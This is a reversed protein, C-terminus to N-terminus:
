KPSPNKLNFRTPFPPSTLKDTLPRQHQSAGPHHILLTTWYRRSPCRDPSGGWACYTFMKQYIECSSSPAAPSKVKFFALPSENGGVSRRPIINKERRYLRWIKNGPRPFSLLRSPPSPPNIQIVGSVERRRGTRLVSAPLRFFVSTDRSFRCTYFRGM